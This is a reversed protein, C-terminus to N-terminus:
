LIEVFISLLNDNVFLFCNSKGINQFYNRRHFIQFLDHFTICNFKMEIANLNQKLCNGEDSKFIKKLITINNYMYDINIYHLYNNSYEYFKRQKNKKLSRIYYLVYKLKYSFQKAANKDNENPKSENHDLDKTKIKRKRHKSNLKKIKFTINTFDHKIFLNLRALALLHM